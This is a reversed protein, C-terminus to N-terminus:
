SLCSLDRRNKEERRERQSGGLQSTPPRTPDPDARQPALALPLAAATAPFAGAEPAATPTPVAPLRPGAWKGPEEWLLEKLACRDPCVQQPIRRACRPPCVLRSVGVPCVQRSGGALSALQSPSDQAPPEGPWRAAMRRRGQVAQTGGDRLGRAPWASPVGSLSGPSVKPHHPPEEWPKPGVQYGAGSSLSSPPSPPFAVAGVEFLRDNMDCLRGPSLTLPCEQPFKPQVRPLRAVPWQGHAACALLAWRRSQGNWGGQTWVNGGCPGRPHLHSGRRAWCGM